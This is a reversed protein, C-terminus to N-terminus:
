TGAARSRCTRARLQELLQDDRAAARQRQLEQPQAPRQIVAAHTPNKGALQLGKIMLDAGLWSEYQSFTPFDSTKFHAYKELASQMQKTGANPLQFPVSRPTSTAARSRPDLVPSGIVAPSTAPRSSWSRPSSARRSSRPRWPTTRTTTSARRLLRQLGEAQRRPGAHTMPWPASPSRRTSCGRGQRGRARLLRGHRHRVPVVVPSIGYGYSCVVTGGHAKMFGGIATNVPYKPDLSGVDSAFMNTFPKRAGSPATSSGAPSRARGAPEPVQRGPLLAPQDVRHRRRGQLARGPGGDVIETPSTQDDLVVGIIKHGNVGGQPTRCARHARQVRGPGPQVRVLGTRHALHDHRHHHTSGSPQGRRRPRATTAALSMLGSAATAMALAALGLRGM